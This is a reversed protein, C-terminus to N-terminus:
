GQTSVLPMCEKRVRREEGRSEWFSSPLMFTKSYVGDVLFRCFLQNVLMFAFGLSTFRNQRTATLGDFLEIMKARTNPERRAGQRLEVLANPEESGATLVGRARHYKFSRGMLRVGNALLASALTDGEFGQYTKNDFSFTLSNARNIHGGKALRNSQTSM